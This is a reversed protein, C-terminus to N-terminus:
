LKELTALSSFIKVQYQERVEVNNLKKPNLREVYKYLSLRVRVEAAM